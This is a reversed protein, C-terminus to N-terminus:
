RRRRKDKDNSTDIYNDNMYKLYLCTAHSMVSINYEDTFHYVGVSINLYVYYHSM